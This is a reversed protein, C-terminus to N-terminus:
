TNPRTAAVARTEPDHEADDDYDDDYDDDGNGDGCLLMCICHGDTVANDAM